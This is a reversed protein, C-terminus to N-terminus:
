SSSNLIDDLEVIMERVAQRYRDYNDSDSKAQSGFSKSSDAMRQRAGTVTFGKDHLLSRINRIVELDQQQYYRRGRRKSPSLEEFEKEWYRLTHTKVKCLRAAEGITFYRKEPIPPLDNSSHEVIGKRQLLNRPRRRVGKAAQSM